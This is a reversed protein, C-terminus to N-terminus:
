GLAARKPSSARLTEHMEAAIALMEALRILYHPWEDAGFRGSCMPFPASEVM